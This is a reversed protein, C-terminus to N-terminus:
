FRAWNRAMIGFTYRGEEVSFSLAGSAGRSCCACRILLPRRTHSSDGHRTTWRLCPLPPNRSTRNPGLTLMTNPPIKSFWVRALGKLTTPFAKCIIEDPVGQLHMTTKFMAIQDCPDCTGDHLDLAPMKFKSPFPHNTISLIFPSDIRHILDDVYNVRRMSDKMEETARKMQDM